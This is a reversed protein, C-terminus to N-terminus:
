DFDLLRQQARQPYLHYLCNLSLILFMVPDDETSNPFPWIETVSNIAHAPSSSTELNASPLRRRGEIASVSGKVNSGGSSPFVSSRAMGSARKQLRVFVM